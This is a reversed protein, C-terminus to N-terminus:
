WRDEKHLIKAIPFRPVGDPTRTFFQITVKKGIYEDAEALVERAYERTGKLGSGVERGDELKFVVRKAAGAWNGLGEEIRIIEFEADEFDKRKILLNSRKQQYPGDLRIIGGEYGEALFADYHEDVEAENHAYMTKVLHIFSKGSNSINLVKSAVLDDALAEIRTGFGEHMMGPYDYVHYEVMERSLEIAEPTVKTKRVMSVISNFDDHLDHNYLEGDLVADPHDEFLPQLAEFIHPVAVIPKGKRSFLGYRSATCRIGDLKPQVWVTGSYDIKTRRKEWGVALMPKFIKPTDIDNINERYDVDLKKQYIALVEALAQEEPTTANARGVNKAKAITWGSTVKQGDQLGAITRYRDGDVEMQWVRVSGTTDRKYLVDLIAM